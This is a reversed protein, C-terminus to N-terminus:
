MRFERDGSQRPLNEPIRRFVQIESKSPLANTGNLRNLITKIDTGEITTDKSPVCFETQSRIDNGKWLTVQQGRTEDGWLNIAFTLSLLDNHDEELEKTTGQNTQAQESTVGPVDM